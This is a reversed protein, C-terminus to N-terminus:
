APQEPLRRACVVEYGAAKIRQKAEAFPEAAVAMHFANAHLFDEASTMIGVHGEWFVLDGRRLAGNPDVLHGLEQAQMDADRPSAHGAAELGLQV